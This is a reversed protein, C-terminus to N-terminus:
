ISAADIQSSPEAPVAQPSTSNIESPVESEVSHERHGDDEEDHEEDMDEVEDERKVDILVADSTEDMRPKKSVPEDENYDSDDHTEAKKSNFALLERKYRIRDEEYLKYYPKRAEEDLNKWAENMSKALDGPLSDGRDLNEQKFRDKEKDCFILYANTPRKPLFPNRTKPRVVASSGAAPRPARATGNKARKVGRVAQQGRTGKTTPAAGTDDLASPVPPSAMEEFFSGVGDPVALAREELRELLIAYELRSRRIAAKTRALALAAVENNQEVSLVRKQLELCKAKLTESDNITSVLLMM